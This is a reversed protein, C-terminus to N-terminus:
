PRPISAPPAPAASARYQHQGLRPAKARYLIGVNDSCWKLVTFHPQRATIAMYYNYTGYKNYEMM